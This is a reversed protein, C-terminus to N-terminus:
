FLLQLLKRTHSQYVRKKCRDIFYKTALHAKNTLSPRIQFLHYSSYFSKKSNVRNGLFKWNDENAQNTYWSEAKRKLRLLLTIFTKFNRPLHQKIKLGTCIFSSPNVKLKDLTERTQLGRRWSLCLWCETWTCSSGRSCDSHNHAYINSM